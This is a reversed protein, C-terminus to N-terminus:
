GHTGNERRKSWCIGCFYKVAQEPDRSIKCCALTMAELVDDAPLYAVFLLRVKDRFGQTFEKGPFYQRFIAEADSAIKQQQKKSAARLRNYAVLQARKEQLIESKHALTAPAASLLGAGKGRNCDACSTLLNDIEDSGGNARPDVHDCELVVAPPTRGCYQCVFGDRKFVDFRTKKSLAM